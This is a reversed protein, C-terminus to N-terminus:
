KDGDKKNMIKYIMERIDQLDEDLLSLKLLLVIAYVGILLMMVLEFRM